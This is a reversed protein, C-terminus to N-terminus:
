RVSPYSPTYPPLEVKGNKVDIGSINFTNMIMGLIMWVAMMITLGLVGFIMHKKGATKKEENEQNSLFEFMGYLFIVLALAFVFIILPNIILKDIQGVISRVSAHATNTFFLDM